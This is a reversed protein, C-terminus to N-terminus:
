GERARRVTERLEPGGFPKLLVVVNESKDFAAEGVTCDEALLVALGRWGSTRLGALYRRVRGPILDLDLFLLSGESLSADSIDTLNECIEPKTGCALLGTELARALDADAVRILARPGPDCL